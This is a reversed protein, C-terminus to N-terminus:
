PLPGHGDHTDRAVALVLAEALLRAVVEVQRNQLVIRGSRTSWTRVAPSGACTRGDTCAATRDSSGFMGSKSTRVSSSCRRILVKM